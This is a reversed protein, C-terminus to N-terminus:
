VKNEIKSIKQKIDEILKIQEKINQEHTVGWRKSITWRLSVPLNNQLLTLENEASCLDNKLRSLQDREAEFKIITPENSENHFKSHCNECLILVDKDTEKYLCDYNNHHVQLKNPNKCLSCANGWFKLAKKKVNM